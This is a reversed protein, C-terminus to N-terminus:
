RVSGILVCPCERLLRFCSELDGRGSRGALAFVPLGTGGGGGGNDDLVRVAPMYLDYVRRLERWRKGRVAARQLPLRRLSSFRPWAYPIRAWTTVDYYYATTYDGSDSDNPSVAPSEEPLIISSLSTASYGAKELLIRFAESSDSSPHFSTTSFTPAVITHLAVCKELATLAIKRVDRPFHITHLSSCFACLKDDVTEVCPPLKLETLSTCEEFVRRGM